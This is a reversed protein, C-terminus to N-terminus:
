PATYNILIGTVGYVANISIVCNGGTITASQVNAGAGGTVGSPSGTPAGAACNSVTFTTGGINLTNPISLQYSGVGPSAIPLTLTQTAGQVVLPNGGGVSYTVSAGNGYGLPGTVGSSAIQWNLPNTGNSPSAQGTVTFALQAPSYTAVLGGAANNFFSSGSVVAGFTTLQPSQSVPVTTPYAANTLSMQATPTPLTLILSGNQLTSSLGAVTFGGVTQMQAATVASPSGTANSAISVGSTFPTGNTIFPSATIVLFSTTFSPTAYTITAIPAAGVGTVNAPSGAVAPSNFTQNGVNLTATNATVTYNATAPVAIVNNASTVNQTISIAPVISSVTVSITGGATIANSNIQIGLVVPNYVIPVPQTVLTGAPVNVVQSTPTPVYTVGNVVVNNATITYFGGAADVVLVGQGAVTASFGSAGGTVTINAAAAGPQPFNAPPNTFTISTFNIASGGILTAQTALGAGNSRTGIAVINDNITAVRQTTELSTPTRAYDTTTLTWTWFRTPGQDASAVGSSSGLYEWQSSALPNQRFFDVRVFQPNTVNTNSGLQAKLGQPANFGPNFSQPTSLVTWSTYNPSGVAGNVNAFNSVTPLGVAAFTPNGALATATNSVDFAVGGVNIVNAATTLNVGTGTNAPVGGVPVTELATTFPAAQPVGLTPFNPTNIVDNFRANLLTQPYIFRTGFGPYLFSINYARVEVNDAIASGFVPTAAATISSPVNLDSFLPAVGDRAASRGLVMSVNGARDFVRARYTYIGDGSPSVLTGQRFGDPLAGFIGISVGNNGQNIFPCSPNTIQTLSGSGFATTSSTGFPNSSSNIMATLSNPNICNTLSTSARQLTAPNSSSAGRTSYHQLSGYSVSFNGPQSNANSGDTLRLVVNNDNNDVFGAREDLVEAQFVFNGVGFTTDASSASSFRILPAQKDVGHPQSRVAFSPNGLADTEVYGVRYPGRTAIAYANTATVAIPLVATADWGGLANGFPAAIPCEPIDAGTATPMPISITDPSTLASVGLGAACGWARWARSSTAPLGVGIDSSAATSSQYNFAANVWGTIAPVAWIANSTTVTPADRRIDPEMTIPGTYDLRNAIVRPVSTSFRFGDVRTVMPVPNNFNDTGASVGVFNQAVIAPHTYGLCELNTNGRTDFSSTTGGQNLDRGIASNYTGNYPAATYIEQSIGRGTLLTSNAMTQTFTGAEDCVPVSATIGQRMTIIAQTVSRGATYFVPAFAYSGTGAAGPGGWYTLNNGTAPNIASAMPFTLRGAWGDVNNFNVTQRNNSANQVESAAGVSNTTYVSASIIKQGNPYFVDVASTTFNATFDATNVFMTIDSQNAVGNSFIQRAAPRRNTGDANAIFAVASDVRQGNPQLNLVIQIQDRVNTIDIPREVNPNAVSVIGTISDITLVPGQTVTQITVNASPSVTVPVLVTATSAAFSANAASTATVTIVATGPAVATVLGSTANVTAVAPATSGYSITAATAGTPQTATSALQATQGLALFLSTPQVSLATVGPPNAVVTVAVASTLTTTTFGTGSGTATVTITAVGPAIATVVGTTANVTAIATSSTAYARTVTVAASGQNVTAAITLSQGVGINAAAPTVVLGSIAAAPAAVSVQASISKGTSTTGTITANGAAIATARCSSGALTATAVGAASSACSALTPPATTSGGVIQVNFVASEGVSLSASPPTISVSEAQQVAAPVTVNDGCAGLAFLAGLSVAFLAKKQSFLQM